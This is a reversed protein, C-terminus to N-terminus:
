LVIADLSHTDQVAIQPSQKIVAQFFFYLVRLLEKFTRYFTFFMDGWGWPHIEM